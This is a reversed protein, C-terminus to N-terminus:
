KMSLNTFEKEEHSKCDKVDEEVIEMIMNKSLPLNNDHDKAVENWKKILYSKIEKDTFITAKNVSSSYGVTEWSQTM